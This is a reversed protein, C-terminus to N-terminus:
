RPRARTATRTEAKRSATDPGHCGFCNESLIPRIHENFSIEIEDADIAGVFSLFLLPLLRKLIPCEITITMM